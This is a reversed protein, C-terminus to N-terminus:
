AQIQVSVCLRQRDLELWVKPARAFSNLYEELERMHRLWLHDLGELCFLLHKGIVVLDDRSEVCYTRITAPPPPVSSTARADLPHTSAQQVQWLLELSLYIGAFFAQLPKSLLKHNLAKDKNQLCCWSATRTNRKRVFFPVRFIDKSPPKELFASVRADSISGKLALPPISRSGWSGFLFEVLSEQCHLGLFKGGQFNCLEKRARQVSTIEETSALHPQQSLFLPKLATRAIKKSTRPAKHMHFLVSLSPLSDQFLTQMRELAGTRFFPCHTVFLRQGWATDEPFDGTQEYVRVQSCTTRSPLQTLHSNVPGSSIVEPGSRPKQWKAVWPAFQDTVFMRLEAGSRESQNTRPDSDDEGQGGELALYSFKRKM